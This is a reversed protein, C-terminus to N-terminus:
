RPGERQRPPPLTYRLCGEDDGRCLADRGVARAIARLEDDRWGRLFGCGFGFSELDAAPEVERRRASALM